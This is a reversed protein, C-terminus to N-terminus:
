EGMPDNQDAMPFDDWLFEDGTMEFADFASELIEQDDYPLDMYAHEEQAPGVMQTGISAPENETTVGITSAVSSINRSPSENAMSMSLQVLLPNVSNPRFRRQRPTRDAPSM